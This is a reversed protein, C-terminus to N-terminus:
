GVDEQVSAELPETDVNSEIIATLSTIETGFVELDEWADPEALM